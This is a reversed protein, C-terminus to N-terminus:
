RGRLPEAESVTTDPGAPVPPEEAPLTVPSAARLLAHAEEASLPRSLFFGQGLDCGLARLHEVQDAREIGEAITTIGLARALTIIGRTLTPDIESGVGDVFTKDIKIVDVDFRQLYSLASYGVGFDDIALRVGLTKLRDMQGVTAELDDLFLSETIELMLAEAPLGTAELAEAVEAALNLQQFQRLSLNVNLTLAIHPNAERWEVVARCAERVVWRGLPIILGTEEALAIFEHPDMLGRTPHNWRVLAEFAEIDLTRLSIIPQYRLEFQGQELARQLDVKLDLRKVADTHMWPEFLAFGAKGAGKAAFMATDANRLLVEVTHEAGGIAIGISGSVRVQRGHVPMPERLVELIRQAVMEVDVVEHVDELLVAFEDGGLRAGTDADRLCDMVREGVTRLLRDGAEHGLSDNVTKFDDLDIYLVAVATDGRGARLLAHEVRDSFLLRNPLGTLADHSVQHQLREEFATRETIDRATLVVGAVGPDDLLNVGIVDMARWGTRGHQFRLERASPRGTNRALEDLLRRLLVGDDPYALEVVRRGVLNQPEYGLITRTAPSAYSLRGAADVVLIVDSAHQVLSRFRQESRELAERMDDSEGILRGIRLLGALTLLLVAAGLWGLLIPDRDQRALHLWIVAPNALLAAGLLVLRTPSIRRERRAGMAFDMRMSPHLASTGVLVAAMLWAVDIWRPVRLGSQTFAAAAQGALALAVGGVLVVASLNHQGRGGFLRVALLALVVTLVGFVLPGLGVLEPDPLDMGEVLLLWQGFLLVAGVAVVTGDIIPHRPRGRRYRALFLVFAAGAAITAILKSVDTVIGPWAASRGAFEAAWAVNSVTLSGMTLAVLYWRLPQPPRLLRVGALVAGTTAANLAFHAWARPVGDPLAFQLAVFLTGGILFARARNSPKM